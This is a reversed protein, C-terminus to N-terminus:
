GNKSLQTTILIKGSENRPLEDYFIYHAPVFVQPIGSFDIMHLSIDEKKGSIHAMIRTKVGTDFLTIDCEKVGPCKQIREILVSKNIKEGGVNLIDDSRGTLYLQKNKIYGIDGTDFSEKPIICYPSFVIIHNDETIQVSVGKFFSGMMSSECNESSMEKYCVYSVESTGYYSYFKASPFTNKLMDFLKESVKQSGCLVTKVEKFKIGSCCLHFLKDPIMYVVDCNNALIEEAWVAAKMSSSCYLFIDNCVADLGINLNGTFALSGNIFIRSDKSIKFTKNLEPYFDTWSKLTRFYLKPKGTTGSTAVAFDANQPVEIQNLDLSDLKEPLIVPVLIGSRAKDFFCQLQSFINDQNIRYLKKM